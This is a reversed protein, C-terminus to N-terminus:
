LLQSVGSNRGSTNVDPAHTEVFRRFRSGFDDNQRRILDRSGAPKMELSVPNVKALTARCKPVQQGAIKCNRGGLDTEFIQGAAFRLEIDRLFARYVAAAREAGLTRALRTKVAGVTPYRAMVALATRIAM